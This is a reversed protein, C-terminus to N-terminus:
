QITGRAQANSLICDVKELYDGLCKYSTSIKDILIPDQKSNAYHQLELLSDLLKSSLYM